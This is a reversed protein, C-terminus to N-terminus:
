EFVEFVPKRDVVDVLVLSGKPVDEPAKCFGTGTFGYGFTNVFEHYSGHYEEYFKRVKLGEFYYEKYSKRTAM